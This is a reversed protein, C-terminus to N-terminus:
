NEKHDEKKRKKYSISEGIVECEYVCQILMFYVLGRRILAALGHQPLKHFECAGVTSEPEIELPQNGSQIIIISVDSPSGTSPISPAHLVLISRWISTPFKVLIRLYLQGRELVNVRCDRAVPGAARGSAGRGRDVNDIYTMCTYSTDFFAKM